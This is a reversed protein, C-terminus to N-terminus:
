QQDQAFRRHPEGNAHLGPFPGALAIHSTIRAGKKGIPEKAIQVLIEQGEKLLESILPVARSQQRPRMRGGTRPPPTGRRPRRDRRDFREPRQRGAEPAAAVASDESEGPEEGEEDEVEGAEDALMESEEFEEGGFDYEEDELENEEGSERVAAGIQSGSGDDLTDEESDSDEYRDVHAALAPMEIEDADLEEHEVHGGEIVFSGLQNAPSKEEASQRTSADDGPQAASESEPVEPRQLEAPSAQDEAASFIKSVRSRWSRRGAPKTESAEPASENEEPVMQAPPEVAEAQLPEPTHEVVPPESSQNAAAEAEVKEAEAGEEVEEKAEAEMEAEPAYRQTLSPLASVGSYSASSLPEDPNPEAKSPAVHEVVASAEPATTERTADEPAASEPAASPEMSFASATLGPAPEIGRYKSISEGPLVIPTYNEPLAIHEQERPERERDRGRGRDRDREGHRGRGRDRGGRDRDRGRSYGRDSEESASGEAAPAPAPAEGEARNYKSISEGPLVMPTFSASPGPKAEPLGQGALAEGDEATVEPEIEETEDENVTRALGHVVLGRPEFGRLERRQRPERPASADSDSAPPPQASILRLQPITQRMAPNPQAPIRGLRSRVTVPSATADAADAVAAVADAGARLALM